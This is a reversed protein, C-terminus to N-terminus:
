RKVKWNNYRLAVILGTVDTSCYLYSFAQLLTVRLKFHATHYDMATHSNVQSCDEFEEYSFPLSGGFQRM